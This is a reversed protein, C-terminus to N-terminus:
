KVEIRLTEKYLSEKLRNGQFLAWILTEERNIQKFKEHYTGLYPKMLQKQKSLQESTLQIFSEVAILQSKERVLNRKYKSLQIFGEFHIVQSKFQELAKIKDSYVDSIDVIYNIYEPPIACNIEYVRLIISKERQYNLASEVLRATEIHDPHADIFPTLYIIDPKIENIYDIFLQINEKNTTVHGDALDMFYLKHIGLIKAVREAELKRIQSLEDGPIESVSQAGDTVFVCHVKCNALSHQKITGGLGITEDDVHPAFVLVTQDREVQSLAKDSRYYKNIIIHNLLKM